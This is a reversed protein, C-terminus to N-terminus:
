PARLQDVITDAQAVTVPMRIQSIPVTRTGGELFLVQDQMCGRLDPYRQVITDQDARSQQWQQQTQAARAQMAPQIREEYAQQMKKAMKKGVFKFASGLVANAIDQGIDGSSDFDPFQTSNRYNPNNPGNPGYDSYGTGAYTYGGQGSNQQGPYPEQGQNPGQGQYPYPGQGPFQGPQQNQWAQNQQGNLMDFLEGVTRVQASSGCRPCVAHQM